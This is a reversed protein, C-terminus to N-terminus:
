FYFKSVMNIEYLNESQSADMLFKRNVAIGKQKSKKLDGRRSIFEELDDEIRSEIKELYKLKSLIRTEDKM